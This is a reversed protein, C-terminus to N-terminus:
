VPWGFTGCGKGHLECAAEVILYSCLVVAEGSTTRTM